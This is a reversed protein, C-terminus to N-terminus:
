LVPISENLRSAPTVAAPCLIVDPPNGGNAANCYDLYETKHEDRAVNLASTKPIAAERTSAM